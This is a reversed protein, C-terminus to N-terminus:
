VQQLKNNDIDIIIEIFKRMNLNPVIPNIPSNIPNGNEDLEFIQEGDQLKNGQNKLNFNQQILENM